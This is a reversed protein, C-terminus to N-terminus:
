CVEVVLRVSPAFFDAIANGLVFQRRFAVGLKSGSLASWLLREPETPSRRHEAARSALLHARASFPSHTHKLM